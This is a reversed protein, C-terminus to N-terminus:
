HGMHPNAPLHWLRPLIQKQDALWERAQRRPTSGSRVGQRSSVTFAAYVAHVVVQPERRQRRIIDAMTLGRRSLDAIEPWTVGLAKPVARTYARVHFPHFLMHQMLHRQTFTRRARQWLARYHHPYERRVPRMISQLVKAPDLNKARALDGLPRHHLWHMLETRNTRLIRRMDQERYPLWRNMVWPEDPLWDQTAGPPADTDPKAPDNPIRVTVGGAWPNDETDAFAQGGSWVLLMLAAIFAGVGVLVRSRRGAM